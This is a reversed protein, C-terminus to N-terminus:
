EPIFKRIAIFVGGSTLCLAAAGSSSQGM